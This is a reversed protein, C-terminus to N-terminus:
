FKGTLIEVCLETSSNVFVDRGFINENLLITSAQKLTKKRLRMRELPIDENCEDRLDEKLLIKHDFVSIGHEIM